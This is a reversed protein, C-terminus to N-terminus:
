INSHLSQLRYRQICTNTIMMM